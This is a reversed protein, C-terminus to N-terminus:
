ASGAAPPHHFSIGVGGGAKEIRRLFETVPLEGRRLEEVRYGSLISATVARAAMEIAHADSIGVLPLETPGGPHIISLHYAGERSYLMAVGGCSEETTSLVVWAAIMNRVDAIEAAIGAVSM